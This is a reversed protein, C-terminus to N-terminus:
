RRRILTHPFVAVIFPWTRAFSATRLVAMKRGDDGRAAHYPATGTRRGRERLVVTRSPIFPSPPPFPYVAANLTMDYKGFTNLNQISMRCVFSIGRIIYFQSTCIAIRFLFTPHCASFVPFTRSCQPSGASSFSRSPRTRLGSTFTANTVSRHTPNRARKRRTGLLSM